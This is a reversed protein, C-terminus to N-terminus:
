AADAGPEEVLNKHPPRLSPVLVTLDYRIRFQSGGAMILHAIHWRISAAASPRSAEIWPGRLRRASASLDDDRRRCGDEGRSPRSSSISFRM